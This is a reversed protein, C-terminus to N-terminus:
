WKFGYYIDDYSLSESVEKNHFGTIGFRICVLKMVKSKRWLKAVSAIKDVM